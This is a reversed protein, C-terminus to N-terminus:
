KWSFSDTVIRWPDVNDAHVPGSLTIDVQHGNRFFAYREFADTVTKGTVPDPASDGQYTLLVVKGAHRSVTKVDSKTFHPVQKRLKPVVTAKVSAPDPATSSSASIAIHNLKDAFTTGSGQNKRTWGEPVKVTFTGKDPTFSVYAQNDPIDGAPNSEASPGPSGGADHSAGSSAGSSAGCGALLGGALLAAATTLLHTRM